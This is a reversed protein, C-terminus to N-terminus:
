IFVQSTSLEGVINEELIVERIFDELLIIKWYYFRGIKTYDNKITKNQGKFSVSFKILLFM